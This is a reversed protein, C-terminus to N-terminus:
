VIGSVKAAIDVGVIRAHLACEAEVTGREGLVRNIRDLRTKCRHVPFLFDEFLDSSDGGLEM